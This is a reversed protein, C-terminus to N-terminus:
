GRLCGVRTGQLGLWEELGAIGGACMDRQCLMHGGGPWLILAAEDRGLAM